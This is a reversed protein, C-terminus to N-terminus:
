SVELFKNKPIAPLDRRHSLMRPPCAQQGASGHWAAVTDRPCRLSGYLTHRSLVGCLPKNHRLGFKLNHQLRM